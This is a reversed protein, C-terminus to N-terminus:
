TGAARVMEEVRRLDEETDVGVTNFPTEAVYIDIGNDLFRLQELREAAELKSEPLNCFRELAARRYAYFGLHKFYGIGGTKDRDFPITSRSFYLARGNLDTVVKVANPNDVDQPPCPTKITSVMVKPDKMPGLLADLHEPRALPEDGQINVYVDASIRQAVEYVRDTGSRHKDSTMQAKWGRAQALQLVEESDTAIIVDRLLPSKKAAEYVRAIMQQGAIERLVKRPLRTSALRAPIIAIASFPVTM